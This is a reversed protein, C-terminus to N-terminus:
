ISFLLSIYSLDAVLLAVLFESYLTRFNVMFMFSTVALSYLLVISM